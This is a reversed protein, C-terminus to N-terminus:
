PTTNTRVIQRRSSHDERVTLSALRDPFLAMPLCWEIWRHRLVGPPPKPESSLQRVVEVLDLVHLANPSPSSTRLPRVSPDTPITGTELM